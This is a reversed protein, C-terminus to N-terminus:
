AKTLAAVLCGDICRIRSDAPDFDTERLYDGWGRGTLKAFAEKLVWLRLLATRKDPSAEWRAKEPPSLFRGALRLDIQRDAEEADIGVAEEALCCFVHEKTHSISFQAEHGAFYPKGRDTVSIEPMERGYVEWFARALLERGATHGDRGELRQWVLVM